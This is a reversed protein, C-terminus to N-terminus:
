DQMYQLLLSMFVIDRVALDCQRAAAVVAENTPSHTDHLMAVLNNTVNQLYLANNRLTVRVKDTDITTM